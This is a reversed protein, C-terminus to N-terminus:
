FNRGNSLRASAYPVGCTSKLYFTERRTSKGPSVIGLRKLQMNILDFSKVNGSHEEGNAKPGEALLYDNGIM